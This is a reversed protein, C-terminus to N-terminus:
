RHRGPSAGGSRCRLPVAAPTPATSYGAVRRAAEDMVWELSEHNIAVKGTNIQLLKNAYPGNFARLHVEHTAKCPPLSFVGAHAEVELSATKGGSAGSPFFDIVLVCM